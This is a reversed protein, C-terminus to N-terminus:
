FFSNSAIRVQRAAVYTIGINSLSPIVLPPYAKDKVETFTKVDDDKNSQGEIYHVINGIIYM